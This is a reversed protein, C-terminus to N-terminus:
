DPGEDDDTVESLQTMDQPNEDQDSKTKKLPASNGPENSIPLINSNTNGVQSSQDQETSM